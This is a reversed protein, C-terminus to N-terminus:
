LTLAKMLVNKPDKPFINSLNLVWNNEIIMDSEDGFTRLLKSADYYIVQFHLSWM